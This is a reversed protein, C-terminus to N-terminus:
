FGWGRPRSDRATSRRGPVGLRIEQVLERVHGQSFDSIVRKPFAHLLDDRRRKIFALVSRYLLKM